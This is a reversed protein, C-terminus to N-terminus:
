RTDKRPRGRRQPLPKPPPDSVDKRAARQALMRRILVTLTLGELEALHTAIRKEEPTLRIGVHESLRDEPSKFRVM